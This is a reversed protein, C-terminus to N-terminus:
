NKTSIQWTTGAGNGSAVLHGAVELRRLASITDSASVNVRERITTTTANPALARVASWVRRALEKEASAELEARDMHVVRLGAKANGDIAVDEIRLGFDPVTTGLERDKEHSVVAPQGKEATMVFVTQCEDFIGSSGRAAEKRPRSGALPTKGAHHVLLVVCGTRESARSLVGMYDRIGSDNEDVGPTSGKLADVMVAGFGDFLHAFADVAEPSTLNLRPLIAADLWGRLDEPDIGAGRARRQWRRGTVRLGQEYDLHLFRARRCAHVGWLPRGMAISLGASQCAISKGAYGQGILLTPPGAAIGLGPVLLNADAPPAFLADFGILSVLPAADPHQMM